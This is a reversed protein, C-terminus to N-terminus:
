WDIMVQQRLGYFTDTHEGNDNLIQIDDVDSQAHFMGTVAKITLSKDKIFKKLMDQADNYLKKAEEGTM